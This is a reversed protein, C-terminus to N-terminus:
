HSQTNIRNSLRKPKGWARGQLTAELLDGNNVDEYVLIRQGDPALGVTANHEETNVPAGLNVAKSWATGKWTSQYIDEFYDNGEATKKGGTSGARRSTILITSEDASVVPGYDSAPSNLEPGANDIFVRAPRTMLQQGNRCELIRRQLDNATLMPGDYKRSASGMPQALQYEAIAERWKANLHLARALLYHTRADATADLAAAKQLYPLAVTKTPSNLYCDGIKVNLLANNPNFQQAALLHPLAQAYRPPDARYDDEGEKLERVAERLGDKNDPFRDKTFPVSQAAGAGATAAMLLLVLLLRHLIAM